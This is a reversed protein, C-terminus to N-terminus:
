KELTLHAEDKLIASAYKQEAQAMIEPLKEERILNLQERAYTTWEQLNTKDVESKTVCYLKTLRRSVRTLFKVRDNYYWLYLKNPNYKKKGTLPMSADAAAHIAATLDDAFTPCMHVHSQEAM